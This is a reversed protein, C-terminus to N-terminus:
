KRQNQASDSFRASRDVRAHELFARLRALLGRSLTFESAARRFLLVAATAERHVGQRRFLPPLTAAIAPVESSRGAVLLTEALDLAVLAAYSASAQAHFNDLARRLSAEAHEVEGLERAVVGRLWLLRTRTEPFRQYLPDLLRVIRRAAAPEGGECLYLALNHLARLHLSPTAHADIRELAQRLVSIALPYDGALRHLAALKMLVRVVGAADDVRRFDALAAELADRAGALDRRDKHLSGDLSALEGRVWIPVDPQLQFAHRVRRFYAEAEALEGAARRANGAYALALPLCGPTAAAEGQGAVAVAVEALEFAEDPDHIVRERAEALYLAVLLPSRFRTISREIRQLREAQTACSRLRTRQRKVATTEKKSPRQGTLIEVLQPYVPVDPRKRAARIRQRCPRCVAALHDLRLEEITQAPLTEDLLADLAEPTLHM